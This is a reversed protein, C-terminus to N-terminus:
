KAPAAAKSADYRKIVEETLDVTPNFYVAGSKALDLIIDFGKEKGLAEIIPILESQVKNFLKVQLDQFDRVADEAVRKRDTQKKQLDANMNYLAEESLTLSQTKIKTELQRIEDDYKTIVAQNSKDKEQLRAIVRKGEASRELVDQSNIVGLRAASQAFSLSVTAAFLSLLLLTRTTPKKM